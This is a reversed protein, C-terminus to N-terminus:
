AVPPPPPLDGPTSPKAIPPPSAPAAPSVASKKGPKAPKAPPPAPPPTQESKPADDATEKSVLGSRQLAKITIADFEVTDGKAVKGNHDFSRLAIAKPM